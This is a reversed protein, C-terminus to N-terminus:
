LVFDRFCCTKFLDFTIASGVVLPFDLDWFSSRVCHHSLNALANAVFNAERFNHQFHIRHFSSAIKNTDQIIQLLRWLCKFKENVCNIILSSDGEVLLDQIGIEQAKLLSDRLATSEAIPVTTKGLNRVSAILPCGVDNRLIFGAAADSTQQIVSGDFNIKVQGENWCNQSFAAHLGDPGPAKLPGISQVAELIDIDTVQAVLMDNDSPDICPTIIDIFKNLRAENPSSIAQFLRRFDKESPHLIINFDGVLIWPDDNVPKFRSIENWLNAAKSTGLEMNRADISDVEDKTMDSTRILPSCYGNSVVIDDKENM